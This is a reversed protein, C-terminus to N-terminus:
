LQSKSFVFTNKDRNGKITDEFKKHNNNCSAARNSPTQKTVRQLVILDFHKFNKKNRAQQSYKLYLFFGSIISRHKETCNTKTM